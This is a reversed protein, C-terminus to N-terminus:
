QGQSKTKRLVIEYEERWGIYKCRAREIDPKM